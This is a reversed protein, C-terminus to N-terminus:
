SPEAEILFILCVKASTLYNGAEVLVSQLTEFDSASSGSVESVPAELEAAAAELCLQMLVTLWARWQQSTVSGQAEGCAQAAASAVTKKAGGKGSLAPLMVARLILKLAAALVVSVQERSVRENVPGPAGPQSSGQPPISSNDPVSAVACATLASIAFVAVPLWQSPAAADSNTETGGPAAPTVMDLAVSALSNYMECHSTNQILQMMIKQISSQTNPRPSRWSVDYLTHLAQPVAQLASLSVQQHALSATFSGCAGMAVIACSMATTAAAVAQVAEAPSPGDDSAHVAKHASRVTSSCAANMQARLRVMSRMHQNPAVGSLAHMPLKMAAELSAVLAPMPVAHMMTVVFGTSRAPGYGGFPSLPSHLQLLPSATDEQASKAALPPLPDVCMSTLWHNMRAALMDQPLVAEFEEGLTCCLALVSEVEEPIAASHNQSPTHVGPYMPTGAFVGPEEDAWRNNAADFAREICDILAHNVNTFSRSVCVSSSIGHQISPKTDEPPTVSPRGGLLLSGQGTSAPLLKSASAGGLMAPTHISPFGPTSSHGQQNIRHVAASDSTAVAQSGGAVSVANTETQQPPVPGADAQNCGHPHHHASKPAPLSLSATAESVHSCLHKIAVQLAQTVALTLTIPKCDSGCEDESQQAQTCRPIEVSSPCAAANSNAAAAVDVSTGEASDDAVSSLVAAVLTAFNHRLAGRVVRSCDVLGASSYPAACGGAPLPTYWGHRENAAHAQMEPSFSFQAPTADPLNYPHQQVAPDETSSEPLHAIFLKSIVKILRAQTVEKAPLTAYPAVALAFCLLRQARLTESAYQVLGAHMHHCSVLIAHLLPITSVFNSLLVYSACAPCQPM